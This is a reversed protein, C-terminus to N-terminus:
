PDEYGLNITLINKNKKIVTFAVKVKYDAKMEDVESKFIKVVVTTKWM